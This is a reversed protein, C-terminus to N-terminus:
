DKLDTIRMMLDAGTPDPTLFVPTCRRPTSPWFFKELFFYFILWLGCALTPGGWLSKYIGGDGVVQWTYSKILSLDLLKNKSICM